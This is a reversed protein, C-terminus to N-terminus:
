MVNNYHTDSSLILLIGNGSISLVFVINCIDGTEDDNKKRKKRNIKKYKKGNRENKENSRVIKEEREECRL